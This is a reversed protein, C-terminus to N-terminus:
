EVAKAHGNHGAKGLKVHCDRRETRGQIEEKGGGGILAFGYSVSLQSIKIGQRRTAHTQMGKAETDLHGLIM